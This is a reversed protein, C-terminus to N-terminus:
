KENSFNNVERVNCRFELRELCDLLVLKFWDDDIVFWEYCSVNGVLLDCICYEFVCVNSVIFGNCVM